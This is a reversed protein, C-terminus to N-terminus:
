AQTKGQDNVENYIGQPLDASEEDQECRQTKTIVPMLILRLRGYQLGRWLSLTDVGCTNVPTTQLAIRIFEVVNYGERDPFTASFAVSSARTQRPSIALSIHYCLYVVFGVGLFIFV